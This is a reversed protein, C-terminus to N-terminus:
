FLSAIFCVDMMTTKDTTKGKSTVPAIKAPLEKTNEFVPMIASIKARMSKRAVSKLLIEYM